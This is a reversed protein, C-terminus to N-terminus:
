RGSPASVFRCVIKNLPNIIAKGVPIFPKGEWDRLVDIDTNEEEGSGLILPSVLELEGKIYIREVIQDNTM